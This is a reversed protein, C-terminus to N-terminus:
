RFFAQKYKWDAEDLERERTKDGAAEEEEETVRKVGLNFCAGGVLNIL